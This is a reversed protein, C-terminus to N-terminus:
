GAQTMWPQLSVLTSCTRYILVCGTEITGSLQPVTTKQERQLLLALLLMSDIVVLRDLAGSPSTSLESLTSVAQVEDALM